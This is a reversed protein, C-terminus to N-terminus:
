RLSGRPRLYLVLETVDDYHGEPLTLPSASLAANRAGVAVEQYVPDDSLPTHVIEAKLVAGSRDIRMDIPISFDEGALSKLDPSWHREVQVRIFDKLAALRGPATNTSLAALRPNVPEQAAPAAGGEPQRLESLARLKAGLDDAPDPATGRDKTVVAPELPSSKAVQRPLARDHDRPAIVEIPVFQLDGHTGAMGTKWVLLILVLFAAHLALSGLLGLASGLRSADDRQGQDERASGGSRDAGPPIVSEDM